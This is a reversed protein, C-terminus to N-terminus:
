EQGELVHPRTSTDHAGENQCIVCREDAESMLQWDVRHALRANSDFLPRVAIRWTHQSCSRDVALAAIPKVTVPTLPKGCLPCALCIRFEDKRKVM